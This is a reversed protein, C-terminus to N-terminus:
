GGPPTYDVSMNAAGDIQDATLLVITQYDSLVGTGTVTGAVAALGLVLVACSWLLWEM